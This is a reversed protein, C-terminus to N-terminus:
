PAQLQRQRMAIPKTMPTTLSTTTSMSSANCYAAIALPTLHLPRAPVVIDIDPFDIAFVEAFGQLMCCGGTLYIAPLKHGAIHERVLDAMRGIVPRVIDLVNGSDNLRKIQEAKEYSVGYHGALVLTMHHGGTPDDVSKIVKGREIIATGTTGGGIDVVAADHLQLLSAVSGPEDIVKSVEIGCSEVVNISIRPDTGPPYSTTAREISIELRESARQLQERVINCAGHYDVVIGDRVVDSWQLYCALPNNDSDLVVTQIDATGLDIGVKFGGNHPALHDDNVIDATKKLLRNVAAITTSM